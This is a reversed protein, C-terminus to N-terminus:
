PLAMVRFWATDSTFRAERPAWSTGSAKAARKHSRPSAQPFKYPSSRSLIANMCPSGLCKCTSAGLVVELERLAGQLLERREGVALM